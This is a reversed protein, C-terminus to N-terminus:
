ESTPRRLINNVLKTVRTLAAQINQNVDERRGDRGILVKADDIEQRDNLTLGGRSAAATRAQSELTRLHKRGEAKLSDIINKAM